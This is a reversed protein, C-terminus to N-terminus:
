LVTLLPFTVGTLLHFARAAEKSKGFRFIYTQQSFLNFIYMPVVVLVPVLGNSVGYLETGPKTLADAAVLIGCVEGHNGRDLLTMSSSAIGNSLCKHTVADTATLNIDTVITENIHKPGGAM